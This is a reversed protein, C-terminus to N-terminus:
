ASLAAPLLSAKALFSADAGGSASSILASLEDAASLLLATLPAAIAVALFRAAPLRVGLPAAADPRLADAGPDRAFLFPLTLLAAIAAM